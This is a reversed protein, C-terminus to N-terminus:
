FTNPVQSKKFVKWFKFNLSKNFKLLFEDASKWYEMLDEKFNEKVKGM